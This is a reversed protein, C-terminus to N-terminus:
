GAEPGVNALRASEAPVPAAGPWPSPSIDFVVGEPGRFKIEWHAGPPIGSEDTLQQAGAETLARTWAEVDDVVVGFHHFGEHALGVGTQDVAPKIIAINIEGDSLMVACPRPAEAEPDHSLGHRGIETLGLARKYFEATRGPHDSTFAIHRIRAMLAATGAHKQKWALM